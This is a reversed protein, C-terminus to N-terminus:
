RRRGGGGAGARGGGSPRYSGSRTTAGSQVRGADQTRQAGEARAASDRQVQGATNQDWGSTAPRQGAEAGQGARDQVQPRESGTPRDVNNWGGNEYKQFGDGEKRYVNGDRGAYVDGDSTRTVRTTNGTVNSSYRKTTAWDDGRRVGTQGWSGYVSSGQRTAGVTGTRPNYASAAARSGYPGYAAAGRSYTGTRPNYRQSVGAGGYPGYAVAGRSYAGTWPNYAAGYGYTPYHPYYIPYGGYRVYPPYYYGTGWVACGWAVMVGTFAMATAFVVADDNSEQVTVYTVTHSPSSVPIEYIQKPV